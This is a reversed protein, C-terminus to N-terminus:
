ARTRKKVAGYRKRAKRECGARKAKSGKKRCQKLAKALKQANTSPKSPTSGPEEKPFAINPIALLPPTAPQMILNLYGPTTFTEDQGYSTGDVNTAVLRYYYTTGPQLDQLALSVAEETTGAGISGLGTAPGYDGPETGIEFGYSTQLGQPDVTGSITASNQSVNSGGGTSVLPPAAAATTFTADNGIGQLGFQNTAV